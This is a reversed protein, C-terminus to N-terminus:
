ILGERYNKLQFRPSCIALFLLDGEGTNKIRQRTNAPIIVVDGATIKCPEETGVEVLGCGSLVVYRETTNELYHWKTRQGKEVRARTISVDEDDVTNSTEIIHCGEEFYYEGSSDHKKIM